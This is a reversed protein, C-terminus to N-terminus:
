YFAYVVEQYYRWIELSSLVVSCGPRQKNEGSGGGMNFFRTGGNSLLTDLCAFYYAVLIGCM